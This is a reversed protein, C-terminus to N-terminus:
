IGKGVKLAEKQPPPLCAPVSGPEKVLCHAEQCQLFGRKAMALTKPCSTEQTEGRGLAQDGKMGQLWRRGALWGQGPEGRRFLRRLSSMTVRAQAGCYVEVQEQSPAMEDNLSWWGQGIREQPVVTVDDIPVLFAVEFTIPVVLKLDM